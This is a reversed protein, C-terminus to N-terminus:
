STVLEDPCKSHNKSRNVQNGHEGGVPKPNTQPLQEDWEGPRAIGHSL